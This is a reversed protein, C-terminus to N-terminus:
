RFQGTLCWLVCGALLGILLDMLPDFLIMPEDKQLDYAPMSDMRSSPWTYFADEPIVTAQSLDTAIVRSGRCRSLSVIRASCIAPMMKCVHMIKKLRTPLKRPTNPPLSPSKSSWLQQFCRSIGM